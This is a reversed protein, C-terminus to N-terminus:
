QGIRCNKGCVNGQLAENCTRIRQQHLEGLSKQKRVKVMCMVSKKDPLPLSFNCECHSEHKGLIKLALSM